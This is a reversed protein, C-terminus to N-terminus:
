KSIVSNQNEVSPRVSSLTLVTTPNKEFFACFSCTKSMGFKTTIFIDQRTLGYKPLMTKFSEGLFRENNYMQATDFLRYGASLADDIIKNTREQGSILYTGLGIMPIKHGTNLQFTSSMKVSLVTNLQIILVFIVGCIFM